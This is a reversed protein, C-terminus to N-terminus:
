LSNVRLWRVLRAFICVFDVSIFAHTIGISKEATGNVKFVDNDIKISCM